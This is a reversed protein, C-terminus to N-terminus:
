RGDPWVAVFLERFMEAVQPDGADTAPTWAMTESLVINDRCYVAYLRMQGVKGPRVRTTGNCVDKSSLDLAPNFVLVLRYDSRDKPADVDYAFTLDPRPKAAQMVTLLERAAAGLDGGAFPRGALVVKFAHHDAVSFFEGYAYQPAYHTGGIVAAAAAVPILAVAAVVSLIKTSAKM